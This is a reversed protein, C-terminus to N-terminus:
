VEGIAAGISPPTRMARLAGLHSVVVDRHWVKLLSGHLPVELGAQVWPLPEVLLKCWRQMADADGVYVEVSVGAGVDDPTATISLPAIGWEHVVLPSPELDLKVAPLSFWVPAQFVEHVDGGRPHGMRGM